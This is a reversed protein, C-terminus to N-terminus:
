PQVEYQFAAIFEAAFEGDENFVEIDELSDPHICYFPYNLKSNYATKFTTIRGNIFTEFNAIYLQGDDSLEVQFPEGTEEIAITIGQPLRCDLIALSLKGLCKLLKAENFLDRPIVRIYNTM